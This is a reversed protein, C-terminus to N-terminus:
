NGTGVGEEWSLGQNRSGLAEARGPAEGKDLARGRDGGASQQPGGLGLSQWKTPFPRSLLRRLAFPSSRSGPAPLLAGKASCGGPGCRHGSGRAARRQQGRAAGRPAM